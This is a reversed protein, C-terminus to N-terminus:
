TVRDSYRLLFQDFIAAQNYLQLWLLDLNTNRITDTTSKYPKVATLLLLKSLQELVVSEVSRLETECLIHFEFSSMIIVLM